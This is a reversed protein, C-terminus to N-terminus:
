PRAMAKQKAHQMTSNSRLNTFPSPCFTTPVSQFSRMYHDCMGDMGILLARRQTKSHAIAPVIVVRSPPFNHSNEDRVSQIGCERCEPPESMGEDNCFRDRTNKPLKTLEAHTANHQRLDSPSVTDPHMPGGNASPSMHMPASFQPRAKHRISKSESM